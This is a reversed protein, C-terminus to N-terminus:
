PTVSTGCVSDGAQQPMRGAWYRNPSSACTHIHHMQLPFRRDESMFLVPGSAPHAAQDGCCVFCTGLGWASPDLSVWMQCQFSPVPRSHHAPHLSPSAMTSRHSLRVRTCHTRLQPEEQPLFAPSEGKRGSGSAHALTAISPRGLPGAHCPSPPSSQKPKLLDLTSCGLRLKCPWIWPHLALWGHLLSSAGPSVVKASSPTSTPAPSRPLSDPLQAAPAHPAPRPGTCTGAQHPKKRHLHRPAAARSAHSMEQEQTVNQDPWNPLPKRRERGAKEEKEGGGGLAPIHM